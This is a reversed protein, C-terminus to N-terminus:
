SVGMEPSEADFLCGVAADYDVPDEDGVPTTATVIPLPRDVRPPIGAPGIEQGRPTLFRVEGGDSIVQFGEEHVRKHHVSCLLLTNALSTEGGDVWHVIHHGDVFRRNTCGPFRCGGDRAALARRLAASFTRTKRGVDLPTGTADELVPVVGADCLLRRSTEASIGAQDCHGLLTAADVHVMVEVPPRDVHDGRLAAEAMALLGELPTEASIQLAELLRAAEEPRLQVGIRVMGDDTDRVRLWREPEARGSPRPQSQAFLRCIKELQAATSHRAIEVLSHENDATAVRTMARVKSYSLQGLRLADDILPLEALAHAVRVKERGAGLAIGCRWSLWHACSLAGQRAWGGERDFRRLDVLLRHVGADLMAATAAIRDALRDLDDDDANANAFPARANMDM